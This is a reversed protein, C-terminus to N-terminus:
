NRFKKIKKKLIKNKKIIKKNYREMVSFLNELFEIQDEESRYLIYHKGIKVGFNGNLDRGYKVKNFEKRYVSWNESQSKLSKM